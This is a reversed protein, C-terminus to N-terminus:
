QVVLTGAIVDHLCRRDSRFICLLNVWFYLAGLIPSFLTLVFYPLGALLSRKLFNPVFGGNNQTAMSVIKIGVAKKGLTQGRTTLYFLNAAFIAFGAILGLFRVPDPFDQYSGVAFATIILLSDIVSAFLRQLRTAPEM